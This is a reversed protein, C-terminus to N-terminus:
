EEKFYETLGEHVIHESADENQIDKWVRTVISADGDQMGWDDASFEVLALPADPMGEPESDCGPMRLDIYFGPHEDDVAKKVVITGFPTEARTETEAEFGALLTDYHEQSLAGTRLLEDMLAVAKEKKTM